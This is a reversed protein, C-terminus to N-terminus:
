YEPDTGNQYQDRDESGYRQSILNKQKNSKSPINVDNRLYVFNYFDCFLVTSILTKVIKTQHHSTGCWATLVLM